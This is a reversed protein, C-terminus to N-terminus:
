KEECLIVPFPANQREAEVEDAKMPRRWQKLESKWYYGRERALLRDNYSVQARVEVNKIQSRKIITDLDYMAVLRLMALVDNVARHADYTFNHDACLYRLSASKGKAYAEPPLDTRTDIWPKEQLNFEQRKFLEELFGKDFPANHACLYDAFNAMQAIAKVAAEPSYGYTDLMAQTIGTIREIEATILGGKLLFGSIRVPARMETDYLCMGVETIKHKEPLLGETEFDIGLIKM